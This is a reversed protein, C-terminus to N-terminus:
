VSMGCPEDALLRDVAPKNVERAQRLKEPDLPLLPVLLPPKPRKAKIERRGGEFACCSVFSCFCFLVVLMCIGAIGFIYPTAYPSSFLHKPLHQLEEDLSSQSDCYLGCLKGEVKYIHTFSYSTIEGLTGLFCHKGLPRPYKAGACDYKSAGSLLGPILWLSSLATGALVFCSFSCLAARNRVEKLRRLEDQLAPNMEEEQALFADGDM